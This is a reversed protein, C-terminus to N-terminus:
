VPPEIGRYQTSPFKCIPCTSAPIVNVTSGCVQCVFYRGTKQDITRSVTEFFSPTWRLIQKIRDRHQQESAWAYGVASIADEVGEPKIQALLRPYFADISHMEGEAARLLNDRTGATRLAPKPLPQLEAGLRTLVKGFNAAHVQESASFATFLYAIGHYGEQTARRAYDNYQLFVTTETERAAQMAALTAPYPPAPRAVPWVSLTGLAMATQLMRRRREDPGHAAGILATFLPRHTLM